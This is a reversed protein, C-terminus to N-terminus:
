DATMSRLERLYDKIEEIGEQLPQATEQQREMDAVYESYIDALEQEADAKTRQLDKIYEPAAEDPHETYYSLDAAAYDAAEMLDTIEDIQEQRIGWTLFRSDAILPYTCRDFYQQALDREDSGRTQTGDILDCIFGQLIEAPTTGNSHAFVFFDRMDDDSLNLTIQRPKLPEQMREYRTTM